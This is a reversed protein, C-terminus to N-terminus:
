WLKCISRWLRPSRRARIKPMIRGLDITTLGLVMATIVSFKERGRERDVRTKQDASAVLKWSGRM